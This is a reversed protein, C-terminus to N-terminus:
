GGSVAAEPVVYFERNDIGIFWEDGQKEWTLKGGGPTAVNGQAFELVREVGDPATVHITASGSGPAGRHIGAPCRKSHSPTDLSCPLLTTADFEPTTYPATPNEVDDGNAQDLSSANWYVLVSEGPMRFILGASGLGSQRYVAKGDQDVFNGAVDGSPVLEHSVGDSRDIYVNGQYQSFTCAISASAHDSGAPYIDCRARTSDALAITTTALLLLAPLGKSYLRYSM